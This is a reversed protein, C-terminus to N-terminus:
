HQLVLCTFCPKPSSPPACSFWTSLITFHPAGLFSISSGSSSPLAPLCFCIFFSPALGPSGSHQFCSVQSQAHCICPVDLIDRGREREYNSQKSSLSLFHLGALFTNVPSARWRAWKGYVRVCVFGPRFATEPNTRTQGSPRLTAPKISTQVKSMSVFFPLPLAPSLPPVPSKPDIPFAPTSLHNTRPSNPPCAAQASPTHRHFWM